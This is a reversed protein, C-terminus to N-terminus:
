NKYIITQLYVARVDSNQSDEAFSGGGFYQSSEQTSTSTSTGPRSSGDDIGLHSTDIPVLPADPDKAM